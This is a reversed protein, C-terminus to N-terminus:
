RPAISVKAYSESEIEVMEACLQLHTGSPAHCRVKLVALVQEALDRKVDVSRGSLLALKAHAFARPAGTTGVVFEDFRLARSKIDPEDFHGSAVLAENLAILTATADFGDLNCSYELTLHPM